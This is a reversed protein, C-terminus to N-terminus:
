YTITLPLIQSTGAGTPRGTLQAVVTEAATEAGVREAVASALFQNLSVGERAAYLAALRHLSKPLRLAVKGSAKHTSM